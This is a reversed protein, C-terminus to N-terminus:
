DRRGRATVARHAVARVGAAWAFGALVIAGCVGILGVLLTGPPTSFAGVWAVLVVAVLLLPHAAGAERSAPVYGPVLPALEDLFYVFRGSPLTHSPIKGTSAWRKVTSVDVGFLDAVQGSTLREREPTM